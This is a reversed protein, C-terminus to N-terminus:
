YYSRGDSALRELAEEWPLPLEDTAVDFHAFRSAVLAAYSEGIARQHVDGVVFAMMAEEDTWATMTWVENGGVVQRLSRGIFGGRSDQDDVVHQVHENFRENLEPDDGLRAYTVAVLVRDGTDMTVADNEFGPGSFPEAVACGSTAVSAVLTAFLFCIPRIM